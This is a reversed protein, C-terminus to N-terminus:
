LRGRGYGLKECVARAEEASWCVFALWRRQRMLDLFELQDEDPREGATKMEIVTGPHFVTCNETGHGICKPPPDFIVLDSAGKRLGARRMWAGLRRSRKGENPVHIVLVKHWRLWDVIQVTEAFETPSGDVKQMLRRPSRFRAPTPTRM